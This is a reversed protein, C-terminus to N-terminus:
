SEWPQAKKYGDGDGSLFRGYDVYAIEEVVVEQKVVWFEVSFDSGAQEVALPAGLSLHAFSIVLIQFERRKGSKGYEGTVVM